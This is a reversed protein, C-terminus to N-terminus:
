GSTSHRRWAEQAEVRINFLSDDLDRFASWDLNTSKVQDLVNRLSRRIRDIPPTEPHADESPIRETTQGSSVPNPIPAADQMHTDTEMASAPKPTPANNEPETAAHHPEAPREPENESSFPQTDHIDLGLPEVPTEAAPETDAKSPSGTAKSLDMDRAPEEARTEVPSEEIEYQTFGSAKVTTEEAFVEDANQASDRAEDQGKDAPQELTVGALSDPVEQQTEEQTQGNSKEALIQDRQPSPQAKNAKNKNKKRSRNRPSKMQGPSAEPTGSDAPGGLRASKRRKQSPESSAPGDEIGASTDQSAPQMQDAPETPEGLKGHQASKFETSDVKPDARSKRKKLVPEAPSAKETPNQVAASSSRRTSMTRIQQIEASPERTSSRRTSRRREKTPPSAVQDIERKRKKSKSSGDAPAAQEDDPTEDLDVALELDQGLQSAIQTEVDDTSLDEPNSVAGDRKEGSKGGRKRSQNKTKSKPTNNESGPKAAQAKDKESIKAPSPDERESATNSKVFRGKANRSRKDPSIEPDQSSDASRGEAPRKSVDRSVKDPSSEPERDSMPNSNKIFRGKVSRRREVSQKASKTASPEDLDKANAADQSSEGARSPTIPSKAVTKDKTSGTKKSSVLPSAVHRRPSEAHHADSASPRLEPPSSPPDIHTNATVASPMDAAPTRTRTGPTPSSGLFVDEGEALATPLTPTPPTRTGADANRLHRLHPPTKFAHARPTSAPSSSHLNDMFSSAKSHRQSESGIAPFSDPVADNEGTDQQQSENTRAPSAAKAKVVPSSDFDASPRVSDTSLPREGSQLGKGPSPNERSTSSIQGLQIQSTLKFEISSPFCVQSDRAQAPGSAQPKSYSDLTQLARSISEPHVLSAQQGFTSKWMDMFRKAVSM